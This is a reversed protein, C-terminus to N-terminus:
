LTGDKDGREACASGSGDDGDPNKAAIGDILIDVVACLGEHYTLGCRILVDRQFFQELSAQMMTRFVMVPFERFVGKRIGEEILAITPEWESELREEVHRYIKPYKDKLVYLARLDIGALRPPMATLVKRLQEKESLGKERFVEAQSEKIADFCHDVMEYLLTKKEPFYAYITKKSMGLERALDDMTFKLGQRNFLSITAELIKTKTTAENM